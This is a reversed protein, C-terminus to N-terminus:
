LVTVIHPNYYAQATLTDIITSIYVKGACYLSQYISSTDDSKDQLFNINSDQNLETLIQLTPNLGKIAKFIFISQADLM